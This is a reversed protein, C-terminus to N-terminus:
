EEPEQMYFLAEIRNPLGRIRKHISRSAAIEREMHKDELNMELIAKRIKMNDGIQENTNGVSDKAHNYDSILQNQHSELDDGLGFDINNYNNKQIKLEELHNISSISNSEFKSKPDMYSNPSSLPPTSSQIESLFEGILSEREPGNNEIIDITHNYGGIDKYKESAWNIFDQNLSQKVLSTNNQAWSATQSIQDLNNMSSSLQEQSSRVTDLSESYGNVLKKGEDHLCNYAQNKSFDQIAQFNKQFEESEAAHYASQYVSDESAGDNYKKSIGHSTSVSNGLAGLGLTFGGGSEILLEFAEKQSIGNQEAFNSAFNSLSRASEQIDHAERKSISNNYNESQALHETLDYMNRAHSSISESYGKQSSEVATEAHHLSSQLSQSISDDSFFSTRLDSNSQKFITEDQGYIKSATGTHETFHGLSLSPALNRQFATTNGYNEQGFNTNSLNYNGSAQEGAAATAASHAPTMMSGALHIFSQVGGQLIAYTIFPISAALYGSLAFIDEHLNQLGISTFISLGKEGESLGLFISQAQGKAVIHQIYNLVAYFPPWLQIWTMLWVWTTFFKIGGPLLSLPVVFLFAIYILVELISRITILSSSALAGLVLYTQKQQSHARSESYGFGSNGSSLFSMMLQQGILEKSELQIGTLAQFTLPLHKILESKDLYDKEKNLDNEMKTLAEKCTLYQEKKSPGGSKPDIYKIMRVNSSNEKLFKWLDTTKKLSDFSYQGLALDYMICQKSFKKLNQEFDANSIKYREFDLVNESGFIMGTKNYRLDNPVKMVTEFAQTVRYGISSLLESFKALFLPVNDVKYSKNKVVDEIKVSSTPIMLLCPIILLPLLYKSFLSTGDYSFFAKSIGLVGGISAMLIAIPKVVGGNGGNFLQAIGDFIHQLIEGGGYTVITMNDM